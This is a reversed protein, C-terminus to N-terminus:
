NCDMAVAIRGRDAFTQGTTLCGTRVSVNSLLEPTATPRGTQPEAVTFNFSGVMVQRLAYTTGGVTAPAWVGADSGGAALALQAAEDLTSPSGAVRVIPVADYGQMTVNVRTPQREVTSATTATAFGTGSRADTREEVSACAALPLVLILARIRM